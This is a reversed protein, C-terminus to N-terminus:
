GSSRYYTKLWLLVCMRIEHEWSDINSSSSTNQDNLIKRKKPEPSNGNHQAMSQTKINDSDACDSTKISPPNMVEIVLKHVKNLYKKDHIKEDKFILTCPIELGGQELFDSSYHRTGTVICSIQRNGCFQQKLEIIEFESCAVARFRQM